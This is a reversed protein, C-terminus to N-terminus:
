GSPWGCAAAIYDYVAGRVDDDVGLHFVPQPVDDVTAHVGFFTGRKDEAVAHADCRAPTFELTVTAGGPPPDVLHPSTWTEGSTPSLLITREVATVSVDPGGPVPRVVLEVAGTLVGGRGHSTVRPGISLEVGAAVARAACDEAHIRRLHGQPDTPALRMEGRRGSEDALVLDVTPPADVPVAAGAQGDAGPGPPCVAEPLPVPFDRHAGVPVVRSRAPDTTATREVTPTALAGTVVVLPVATGNTVRLQVVRDGWDARGQRIEVEVGALVAPDLAARDTPPPTATGPGASTTARDGAPSTGSGASTTAGTCGTFALGAAATAALLTARVGPRRRDATPTATGAGTRPM